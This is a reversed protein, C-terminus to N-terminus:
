GRRVEDRAVWEGCWDTAETLPWVAEAWDADPTPAHRRCQGHQWYRCGGCFQEHVPPQTM